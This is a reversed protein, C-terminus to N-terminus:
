ETPLLESSDSSTIDDESETVEKKSSETAKDTKKEDEKKNTFSVTNLSNNATTFSVTQVSKSCTYGSPVTQIIEYEDYSLGESSVKGEANTKGLETVVGNSKRKVSVAVDKMPKGNEDKVTVEVAASFRINSPTTIVAIPWQPHPNRNMREIACFEPGNENGVHTVWHYGNVEGAYICIHSCWQSRNYWDCLIILSGIPIEEYPDFNIDRNISGGDDADFGIYRSYGAEVWQKGAIYWDNASYSKAPRALTSTDIGAVNPLYNFYVYVAYTACVLGTNEFHTINPKGDVTEYGSARGYDDYTINSLWGLGKKQSSLVYRSGSDWMRGSNRQATLNYGTYELADLFVNNDVSMNSNYNYQTNTVPTSVVTQIENSVTPTESSVTIEESSVTEEKSSVAVEPISTVTKSSTDSIKGGGSLLIEAPASLISSVIITAATVGAVVALIVASTIKHSTVFAAISYFVSLFKSKIFNLFKM